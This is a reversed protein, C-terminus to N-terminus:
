CAFRLEGNVRLMQPWTMSGEEFKLIGEIAILQGRVNRPLPHAQHSWGGGTIAACGKTFWLPGCANEGTQGVPQV